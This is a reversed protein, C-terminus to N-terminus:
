TPQKNSFNLCLKYFLWLHKLFSNNYVIYVIHDALNSGLNQKIIMFIINAAIVLFNSFRLSFLHKEERWGSCMEM